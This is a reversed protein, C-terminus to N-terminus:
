YANITPHNELLYQTRIQKWTAWSDRTFLYFLKDDDEFECVNYYVRSVTSKLKLAYGNDDDNDELFLQSYRPTENQTGMLKFTNCYVELQELAQQYYTELRLDVGNEELISRLNEM